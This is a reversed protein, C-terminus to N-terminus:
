LKKARLMYNVSIDRSLYWSGLLPNYSVGQIDEIQMGHKQLISCIESPKMFKSWDHTGKPLWRLIYEAGVIAYAFSKVTRNLTAVYLTGGPKVLSAISQCFAPVNAVHEIIEMALVVDFPKTNKEELLQEASMSQYAINLGSKKAHLKAIEINKESADIATVQMGKRAMPESLLGGGCGIDLLTLSNLHEQTLTDFDKKITELIYSVRVPNLLHLPRFKGSEDWWEEAMLTFKEVEQSDITSRSDINKSSTSSM